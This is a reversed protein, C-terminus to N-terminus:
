EKSDWEDLEDPRHTEDALDEVTLDDFSGDDDDDRTSRNIM